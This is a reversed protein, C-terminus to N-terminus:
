TCFVVEEEAQGEASAGEAFTAEAFICLLCHSRCLAAYLFFLRPTVDRVKRTLVFEGYKHGVMQATVKVRRWEKGSHVLYQM